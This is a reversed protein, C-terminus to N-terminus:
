VHDAFVRPVVSQGCDSLIAVRHVAKFFAILTGIAALIRDAGRGGNWRVYTWFGNAHDKTGDPGFLTPRSRKQIGEPLYLVVFSCVNVYVCVAVCAAILVWLDAGEGLGSRFGEM